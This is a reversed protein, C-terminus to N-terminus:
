IADHDGLACSGEYTSIFDSKSVLFLMSSDHDQGAPALISQPFYSSGVWTGCIGTPSLKIEQTTNNKLYVATVHLDDSSYTDLPIATVVNDAFLNYKQNDFSMIKRIYSNDELLRKPAYYQQITFQLLDQMSVQDDAFPSEEKKEAVQPFIINIPEVSAKEQAKFNILIIQDNKARVKLQHTGFEEKATIYLVNNSNQIDLADVLDDPLALEVTDPFSIYIQKGVPLTIDIPKKNWVLTTGAFSSSVMLLLLLINIVRM